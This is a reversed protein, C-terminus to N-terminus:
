DKLVMGTGNFTNNCFKINLLLRVFTLAHLSKSVRMKAM